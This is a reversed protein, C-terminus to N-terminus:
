VRRCVVFSLRRCVVVSALSCFLVPWGVSHTPPGTALTRLSTGKRPPDAGWRICPKKSGCSDAGFPMEITKACSM